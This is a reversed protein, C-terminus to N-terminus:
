NLSLDTPFAAMASVAGGQRRLVGRWLAGPDASM